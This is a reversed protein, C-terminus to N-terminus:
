LTQRIEDAPRPTLVLARWNASELQDTVEAAFTRTLQGLNRATFGALILRGRPALVRLLDDRLSLLAQANLNAAVVDMSCRAVCRASGGFLHAPTGNERAEALAALDLDCAYRPGAGLLEAAASLIGSGTGVDLFREGPRLHRELAALALQTAPQYGSGSAHRAHVALRLRGAPAPDDRWAPVIFLREGVAFPEFTDVWGTDPHTRWPSAIQALSAPLDCPEAFFAELESAGGPLDRETIGLTGLEYLEAEIGDRGSTPCTFLLSYHM